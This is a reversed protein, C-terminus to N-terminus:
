IAAYLGAVACFGTSADRNWQKMGQDKHQFAGLGGHFERDLLIADRQTKFDVM